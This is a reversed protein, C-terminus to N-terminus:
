VSWRHMPTDGHLPGLNTSISLVCVDVGCGDFLSIRNKDAGFASAQWIKVNSPESRRIHGFFTGGTPIPHIHGRFAALFLPDAVLTDYRIGFISGASEPTILSLERIWVSNFIRFVAM